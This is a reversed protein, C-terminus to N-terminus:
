QSLALLLDLTLGNEAAHLTVLNGTRTATLATAQTMRQLPTVSPTSQNLSSTVTYSTVANRSGSAHFLMYFTEDCDTDDASTRCDGTLLFSGDSEQSSFFVQRCSALLDTGNILFRLIKSEAPSSSAAVASSQVASGQQAAVEAKLAALESLIHQLLVTDSQLANAAVSSGPLAGSTATGGLLSSFSGVLGQNQLLHLDGASLALSLQKEAAQAAFNSAPTQASSAADGNAADDNQTVSDSTASAHPPMTRAANPGFFGDAGPVYFGSGVSPMTVTPLRPMSPATTAHTGATMPQAGLTM